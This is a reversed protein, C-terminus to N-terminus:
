WRGIEIDAESGSRGEAAEAWAGLRQYQRHALSQHPMKVRPAAVLVASIGSLKNIIVANNGNLM